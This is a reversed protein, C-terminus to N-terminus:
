QTMTPHEAADRARSLLHWYYERCGLQSLLFHKWANDSTGQPSLFWGQYPVVAESSNLQLGDPLAMQILTSNSTWQWSQWQVSSKIKKYTEYSNLVLINSNPSDAPGGQIVAKEDLTISDHWGLINQIRGLETRTQPPILSISHAWVESLARVQCSCDLSSIWAEAQEPHGTEVPWSLEWRLAEWSAGPFVTENLWKKATRGEWCSLSDAVLHNSINPRLGKNCLPFSLRPLPFLSLQPWM